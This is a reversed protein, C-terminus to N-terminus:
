FKRTEWFKQILFVKSLHITGSLNNNNSDGLLKVGAKCCTTNEHVDDKAGFASQADLPPPPLLPVM